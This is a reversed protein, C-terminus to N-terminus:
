LIVHQLEFYVNGTQACYHKIKILNRGSFM